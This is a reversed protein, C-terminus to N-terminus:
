GQAVGCAVLATSKLADGGKPPVNASQQRRRPPAGGSLMFVNDIGKEYFLNAAPQWVWGYTDRLAKQSDPRDDPVYSAEEHPDRVVAIREDYDYVIIIRDPEKNRYELIEASFNNVSRSLAPAPYSHAGLICCQQFDDPDRLDLLLFDIEEQRACMCSSVTRVVV